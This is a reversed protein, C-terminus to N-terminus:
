HALDLVLRIYTERVYDLRGHQERYQRINTLHAIKLHSRISDVPYVLGCLRCLCLCSEEFNDVFLRPTLLDPEPSREPVGVAKLVESSNPAAVDTEPLGSPLESDPKLDTETRYSAVLETKRADASDAAQRRVRRKTSSAPRRGRRGPHPKKKRAVPLTTSASASSRRGIASRGSSTLYATRYDQLKLYHVTRLHARLTKSAARYKHLFVFCFFLTASGSGYYGPDM